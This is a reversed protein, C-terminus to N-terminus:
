FQHSIVVSTVTKSSLIKNYDLAFQIGIKNDFIRGVAVKYQSYPTTVGFSDVRGHNVAVNLKWNSKDIVPTEGYIGIKGFKSDYSSDRAGSIFAGFHNDNIRHEIGIQVERIRNGIHDFGYEQNFRSSSIQVWFPTTSNRLRGNYGIYSIQTDTYRSISIRGGAYLGNLLKYDLGIGGNLKDKSEIDTIKIGTTTNFGTKSQDVWLKTGQFGSGFPDTSSFSGFMDGAFSASSIVLAIATILFKM